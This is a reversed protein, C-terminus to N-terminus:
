NGQIVSARWDPEEEEGQELFEDLCSLTTGLAGKVRRKM